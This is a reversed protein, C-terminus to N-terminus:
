LKRRRRFPGVIFAILLSASVAVISVDILGLSNLSSLAILYIFALATIFSVLYAVRGLGTRHLLSYVGWFFSLFILLSFGALIIPRDVAPEVNGVYLGLLLSSIAFYIVHQNKKM